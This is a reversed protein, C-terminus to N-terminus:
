YVVTGPKYLTQKKKHNIFEGSDDDKPPKEDSVDIEGSFSARDTPRPNNIPVAPIVVNPTAESRYGCTM